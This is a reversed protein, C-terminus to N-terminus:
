GVITAGTTLKAPVGGDHVPYVPPIPGVVDLGNQVQEVCAPRDFTAVIKSYYGTDLDPGWSAGPGDKQVFVYHKRKLTMTNTELIDACSEVHGGGLVFLWPAGEGGVSFAYHSVVGDKGTYGQTRQGLDTGTTAPGPLFRSAAPPAGTKKIQRFYGALLSPWTSEVAPEPAPLDFGDADVPATPFATGGAAPTYVSDWLLMSIKWPEGLSSRTVILAADAPAAQGPVSATIQALFYLPFHDRRPYAISVSEIRRAGRTWPWTWCKCVLSDLAFNQALLRSGTSISDLVARDRRLFATEETNWLATIAAKAQAPTVFPAAPSGDCADPGAPSSCAASSSASAAPVLTAGVVICALAFRYAAFM